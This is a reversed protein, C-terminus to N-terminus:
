EDEPNVSIPINMKVRVKDGSERGPVWPPMKMFLQKIRKKTTEGANGMVSIDKLSGDKEVRFSVYALPITVESSIHKRIFKQMNKDGGPFYPMKEVVEYVEGQIPISYSNTVRNMRGKESLLFKKKATKGIAYGRQFLYAENFWRNQVINFKKDIFAFKGGKGIITYDDFFPYALNYGRSALEGERSIYYFSDQQMVVAYGNQFEGAYLYQYDIKEKGYQNVFGYVGDENKRPVLVDKQAQAEGIVLMFIMSIILYSYITRM